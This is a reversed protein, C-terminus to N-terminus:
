TCTFTAKLIKVKATGQVEDDIFNSMDEDSSSFVEHVETMPKKYTQKTLARKKPSTVVRKPQSTKKKTALSEYDLRM